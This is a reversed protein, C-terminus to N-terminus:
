FGFIDKRLLKYTKTDQTILPAMTDRLFTATNNGCKTLHLAKKTETFFLGAASKLDDVPNGRNISEKLAKARIAKIEDTKEPKNCTTCLKEIIEDELLYSELTRLSLVTIGQAKLEKIEEPSRDDRDILKIITTYPNVKKIVEFLKNTEIDNCSGVSCFVANPFEASFIKTYCKEDFNKNKTGESNGECFIIYNDTRKKISNDSPSIDIPYDQVKYTIQYDGEAMKIAELCLINIMVAPGGEIYWCGLENQQNLLWKKGREIREQYGNPKAVALATIALCTSLIDGETENSTLPWAGSNLQTQYILLFAKNLIEKKINTPRIRQWAFVIISATPIYDTLIDIDQRTNPNNWYTRWPKSADVNGICIGYLLSELGLKSIKRLLLDSRCFYFLSYVSYISDVGGQYFTSLELTHADVWPSFEELQMWEVARFFTAKIFNEEEDRASLFYTIYDLETIEALSLEKKKAKEIVDKRNKNLLIDNEIDICISRRWKESIEHSSVLSEGKSKFYILAELNADAGAELACPYLWAEAKEIGSPISMFAERFKDRIIVLEPVDEYVRSKFGLPLFDDIQPKDTDSKENLRVERIKYLRKKIKDIDVFDYIEPIYKDIREFFDELSYECWGYVFDTAFSWIKSIQRMSATQIFDAMKKENIYIM